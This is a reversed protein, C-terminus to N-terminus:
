VPRADARVCRGPVSVPPGRRGACGPFVPPRRTRGKSLGAWEPGSRRRGAISARMRCAAGVDWGDHRRVFVALLFGGAAARAEVVSEQKLRWLPATGDRGQIREATFYVIDDVVGTFCGNGPHLKGPPAALDLLHEVAGGIMRH